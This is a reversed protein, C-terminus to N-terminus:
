TTLRTRIEEADAAPASGPAYRPVLHVHLHFVEQGAAAGSNIQANIGSAALRETITRAVATVAEAILPLGAPESTLDDTHVVPVVLTHGPSKPSLDLFAVAREDRYVERAPIEGSVIRCFLCDSAATM